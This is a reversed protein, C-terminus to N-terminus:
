LKTLVHGNNVYRVSVRTLDKGPKCMSVHKCIYAPSVSIGHLKDVTVYCHLRIPKSYMIRYMIIHVSDISLSILKIFPMTFLSLDM